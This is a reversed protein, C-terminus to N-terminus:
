HVLVPVLPGATGGGLGSTSCPSGVENALGLFELVVDAPGEIPSLMLVCAYAQIPIAQPNSSELMACDVIPAIAVRRAAGKAAHDVNTPLKFANSIGAPNDTQYPDHSTAQRTLFDAYADAGAPWTAPITGFAAKTYAFGTLDPPTSDANFQGGNKYVGFRSNWSDTAGVTQGQKGVQTGIDPLNCVGPGALNEKLENAGNGGGPPPSFDIWNYSGTLSEGTGSGYKGGYWQGKVLGFTPPGGQTCVGIPIACNTQSSSLTATALAGVSGPAPPQGLFGKLVQMFWTAIGGQSRACMAYRATAPSAAANDLYGFPFVATNNSLRDSFWLDDSTIGTEAAQFGVRNRNGATLGASVARAIADPDGRLEGAAALACADMANQLETRTVFLRGLDIVLGLFGILIAGAIAVLVIVAGRQREPPSCHERQM